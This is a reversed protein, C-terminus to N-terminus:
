IGCYHNSCVECHHTVSGGVSIAHGLIVHYGLIAHDVQVEFSVGSTAHSLMVSVGLITYDVM